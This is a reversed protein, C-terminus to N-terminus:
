GLQGTIAGLPMAVTVSTGQDPASEILVHGGFRRVRERMGTIGFRGERDTESDVFGRGDDDISLMALSDVAHLTVSVNKAQAHRAVNSLAEQTARLFIVDADPVLAPMNAVESTAHVGNAEGWQAVIRELAAGLTAEALQPPQLAWVLRRIESLSSRSVDRAHALHPMAKTMARRAAADNSADTAEFSLEIAELHKIVSTFGQALTDHIDRALRQREEQVGSERARDALDRQAEDLQKLLRARIASDRNVRHIYSMVTGIMVGMAVVSLVRAVYLSNTQTRTQTRTQAAMATVLFAVVIALTGIAAVFPFFLFGQLVAGFILLVMGPAFRLSWVILVWGLPVYALVAWLRWLIWGYAVFGIVHYVILLVVVSTAPLAAKSSLFASIGGADHILSYCGVVLAVAQVGAWVRLWLRANHTFLPQIVSSVNRM